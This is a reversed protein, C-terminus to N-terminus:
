YAGVVIRSDGWNLDEYIEHDRPQSTTREKRRTGPQM